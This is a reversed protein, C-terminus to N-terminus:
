DGLAQAPMQLETACLLFYCGFPLVFDFFHVYCYNILEGELYIGIRLIHVEAILLVIHFCSRM